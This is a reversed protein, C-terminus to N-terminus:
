LLNQRVREFLCVATAAAANLSEAKGAMPIMVQKSAAKILAASLGTGENGIIFAVPRTLDQAYLSEGHLTTALTQGTFDAVIQLLDAREVIPLVFHAGQGGRLAKPSWGDACNESLYAMDVGAGAASRLISGLNGPDQIDELLLAFSVNEPALLQPTKVLALIGVPTAVPSVEAFMAPPLTIQHAENLDQILHLVEASFDGESLILLEPPGFTKSYAQVLHVGDLLCQGAQRRERASEALKKLQKFLSNDRSSIHKM